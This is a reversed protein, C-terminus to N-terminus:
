LSPKAARKGEAELAKDSATNLVKYWDLYAGVDLASIVYDDVLGDQKRSNATISYIRSCAATPALPYQLGIYFGGVTYSKLDEFCNGNRPKDYVNVWEIEKGSRDYMWHQAYQQPRVAKPDLPGFKGAAETIAKVTPRSDKIQETKTISWVKNTLPSVGFAIITGGSDFQGGYVYNDFRGKMRDITLNLTMKGDRVFVKSQKAAELIKIAEEVSMGLRLGGVDPNDAALALGQLFLSASLALTCQLATKIAM